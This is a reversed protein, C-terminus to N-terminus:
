KVQSCWHFTEDSGDRCDPKGNCVKSSEICEKEASCEFQDDSCSTVSEVLLVGLLMIVLFLCVITLGV